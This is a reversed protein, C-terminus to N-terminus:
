QFYFPASRATIRVRVPKTAQPAFEAKLACASSSPPAQLTRAFLSRAVLRTNKQELSPGHLQVNWGRNCRGGLGLPNFAFQHAAQHPRRAVRLEDAQHQDRNK